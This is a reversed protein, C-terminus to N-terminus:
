LDAEALRNRIMRVLGPGVQVAVIVLVAVALAVGVYPAAWGLADAATHLLGEVREPNRSVEIAAAALGGTGVVQGARKAPKRKPKAEPKFRSRRREDPWAKAGWWRERGTDVHIFDPRGDDTLYRGIGTFGVDKAAAEVDRADHNTLDIDFARGEMHLSKEAGGVAANHEPSRYASRIVLPRGGLERRLAELKNGAKVDVLVEGTGRCALEEPSFHPFPWWSRDVYTWHAHHRFQRPTVSTESM